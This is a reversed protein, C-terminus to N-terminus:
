QTAEDQPLYDAADEIMHHCRIVDRIEFVPMAPWEAELKKEQDKWYARGEDEWRGVNEANKRATWAKGSPDPREKERQAGPQHPSRTVRGPPGPELATAARELGRDTPPGPPWLHIHTAAHRPAPQVSLHGGANDGPDCMGSLAGGAGPPAQETVD